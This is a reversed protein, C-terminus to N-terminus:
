LSDAHGNESVLRAMANAQERNVMRVFSLYGNLYSRADRGLRASVADFGDVRCQHAIARFRRVDRRSVRPSTNVVIGTVTQARHQRMVLTKSENTIFGEARLIDSVVKTLLRVPLKPQPHSFALDDAYRTYIFGLSDAFGRLRLDLRRCLYNALGPSTCAGQPLARPGTAVFYTKGHFEVVARPSETCILALLTAVGENYGCARFLGRVRPFTISPFFDQIDMRVVVAKGCHFRANTVISVGRRFAM